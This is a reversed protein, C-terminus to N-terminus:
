PYMRKSLQYFFLIFNKFGIMCFMFCLLIDRNKLSAVVESHIPMIAFLAVCYFVLTKNYDSLLLLLVSYLLYLCGLYFTLNFFHSVGTNVGFLEHEIAYSVKVIPRYDFKVDESRDVYYSKLIKPIAKIGQTTINEKETVIYDDLAYGNRLTNGYFMFVIALLIIRQTNFYSKLKNM